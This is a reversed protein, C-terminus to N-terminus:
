FEQVNGTMFASIMSSAMEKDEETPEDSDINPIEEGVDSFEETASSIIVEGNSLSKIIDLMESMQDKLESVDKKLSAVDVNEKRDEETSTSYFKRKDKFYSRGSDSVSKAEETFIGMSALSEQMGEMLTSVVDVSAKHMGQIEEDIYGRIEEEELYGTLLTAMLKGLLKNKKFPLVLNDYVTDSVEFMVSVNRSM